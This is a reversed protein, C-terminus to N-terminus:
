YKIEIYKKLTDAFKFTHDVDDTNVYFIDTEYEYADLLEDTGDFYIKKDDENIRKYYYLEFSSNLDLLELTAFEKDQQNVKNMDLEIIFTDNM